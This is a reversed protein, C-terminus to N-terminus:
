GAISAACQHLFYFIIVKKEATIGTFQHGGEGGRRKGGRREKLSRGFALCCRKLTAWLGDRAVADEVFKVASGLSDDIQCFLFAGTAANCNLHEEPTGEGGRALAGSELKLRLDGGLQTVWADNCDVVAQWEGAPAEGEDHFIDFSAGKIYPGAGFFMM